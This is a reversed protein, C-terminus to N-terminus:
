NQSSDKTHGKLLKGKVMGLLFEMANMKFIKALGIYLVIGAVIGLALQLGYNLNLLIIGFSGAAMFLSLLLSPLILKAQGWMSLDIFRRTYTM